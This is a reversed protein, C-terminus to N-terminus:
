VSPPDIIRMLDKMSGIDPIHSLCVYVSQSPYVLAALHQSNKSEYVLTNLIQTRARCFAEVDVRARVSFQKNMILLDFPESACATLTLLEEFTQVPAIRYYNLRNLLKEIHIIRSLKEEVILIRMKKNSM